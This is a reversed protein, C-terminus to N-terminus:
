VLVVTYDQISANRQKRNTGAGRLKVKGSSGHKVICLRCMGYNVKFLLCM